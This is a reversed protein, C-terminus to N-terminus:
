TPGRERLGIFVEDLSMVPKRWSPGVYAAAVNGSFEMVETEGCEGKLMFPKVMTVGKTETELVDKPDFMIASLAGVDTGEDIRKQIIDMLEETARVAM